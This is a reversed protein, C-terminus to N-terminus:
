FVYNFGVNVGFEGDGRNLPQAGEVSLIFNRNMGLKLGLGVSSHFARSAAKLEEVSREPYASAYKEIEYPRLVAGCDFFPNVGVYWSQKILNFKFLRIRFEVNAWAYSEGLLRCPMVARITNASGLGESSTQLMRLNYINQLLYFPTRGAVTGQYALHYAFVFADNRAISLYQRFHACFKLYSTGARFFDPAGTFFAEAWIGRSPSPAFDRTDYVAGLKLELHSGGDAEEPRILGNSKYEYFLTNEADYGDMKLDAIRFNWFAAGAAWRFNPGIINGQFDAMVRIMSRWYSYRATRLEKNANLGPDYTELGNFGYFYYMPDLQYSAVFTSQINPILYDSNYQTYLLTQQKTYRSAEVYFHDRYNPFMSGDSYNFLDCCVGYQFGLDSNYSVVPLPAFNWGTKHITATDRVAVAAPSSVCYLAALLLLIFKKM